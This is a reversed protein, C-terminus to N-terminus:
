EHKARLVPAYHAFILLHPSKGCMLDLTSIAVLNVANCWMCSPPSLDLMAGSNANM